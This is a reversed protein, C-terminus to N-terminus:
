AQRDQQDQQMTDDDQNCKGKGKANQNGNARPREAASPEEGPPTPYAIRSHYIGCLSKVLSTEIRNVQRLTLDCQDLQGDMLRRNVMTHVQNEIRGPTPDEMSRVSSEAADALMLIAAEKSSPKPGPYRFEVEDPGRDTDDKRQRSAVDYFYQVLTTGHHTAIFERLVPPLKYERVMELGDKVHATIILRSMAPSLKDHKSPVPSQNEIFYEPKNTKGIDHYYAGVRVLLGRAGIAEAAAECIAGLQLSHNYTGPAQMALRRLLPKSADCWELLTMSTSIGFAREILPLIGQVLFGALVAFGVAWLGDMLVFRWPMQAYWAGACLAVFVVGSAIASIEILKSRTRVEHLLFVCPMVGSLLVVLMGFDGRLQLTVLVALLAAIVMAFRQDYTITMVLSIMVVVLVAAHPNWQLVSVMAKNVALMLLMVVTIALGRWHNTVIRGEYRVIYACLLAVPLLLLIARGVTKVGTRWLGRRAVGAKHENALLDLEDKTLGVKPKGGTAGRPVLIQGPVYHDYAEEPPSDRVAKAAAEMDKLTGAADYGYLPRKALEGALFAKVSGAIGVDEFGEALRAAAAEIGRDDKQSIMDTKDRRKQMRGRVLLVQGARRTLQEQYEEAPVVVTQGLATGLGQLREAFEKGGEGVACRQWAPLNEQTLAFRKRVDEDLKAPQTTTGLQRPLAKLVSIIEDIGAEDARFRAPAASRALRVQEELREQPLVQFNVRALIDVPVYQGLRYPRPDVPWVDMILATIYFVGVLLASVVGGSQRFRRWRSPGDASIKKRVELRRQKVKRKFPWM